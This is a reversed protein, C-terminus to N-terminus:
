KHGILFCAPILVPLTLWELKVCLPYTWQVSSEGGGQCDYPQMPCRPRRTQAPSRMRPCQQGSVAFVSALSPLWYRHM